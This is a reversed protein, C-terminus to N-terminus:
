SGEPDAVVDLGIDLAASRTRSGGSPSPTSAPAPSPRSRTSGDRRRQGRRVGRRPRAAAHSPPLLRGRPHLQRDPGRARGADLAEDLEALSDVEVQVPLGDAAAHAARAAAGVGGAAAVHNDKVLIGDSLSMRHNVGGGAAVAAKQLARLGPLTKRTDRVVADTGAVADVCARTATAIGCLHTLLNLATREGTLVSRAPGRVEALVTGAEVRDGVAVRVTVAVAEDVAAYVAALVETGAVVGAERAVFAGALLAEAPVTARATADGREDLDEALAVAIVAALDPRQPLDARVGAARV